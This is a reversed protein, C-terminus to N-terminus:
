MPGFYDHSLIAFLICVKSVGPPSEIETGIHKYVFPCDFGSDNTIHGCIVGDMEIDYNDIEYEGLGKIRKFRLTRGESVVDYDLGWRSTPKFRLIEKGKEAIVKDRNGLLSLFGSLRNKVIVNGEFEIIIKDREIFAWGMKLRSRAVLTGQSNLIYDWPSRWSIYYKESKTITM